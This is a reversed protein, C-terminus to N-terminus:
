TGVSKFDPLRLRRSLEAGTWAQLPIARGKCVYMIFNLFIRQSDISITILSCICTCHLTLAREHSFKPLPFAILIPYELYTGTAKTICCAFRMRGIVSDGTSQRDSINKWMIEYVALNKSFFTVSCLIRTKIKEVVKTQFM